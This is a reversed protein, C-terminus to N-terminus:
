RVNVQDKIQDYVGEKIGKVKMVDEPKTYPRGDIIAQARAPGIGPLSELEEKTASNLDIKQHASRSTPTSAPSNASGKEAPTPKGVGTSPASRVSGQEAPAPKGGAATAARSPKVTVLPKLAALKVQSIGTVNTLDNVSKFPRAEIIAKATVPGIGPLAELEQPSATNLEV